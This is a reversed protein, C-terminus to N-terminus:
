AQVESVEPMNIIETSIKGSKSRKQKKRQQSELFKKGRYSDGELMIIECREVLRDILATVSAANPFVSGWEEFARNTTIITSKKEACRKHVLQFLLDAHINNYSLYGIEDIAIVQPKIYKSLAKELGITGKQSCLEDLLIASETFIASIGQQAASFIINKAITTKGIGSPGFLIINEGARTFDMNFLEMIQGKDARRYWSWDFNTIPEFEATNAKRLYLDLRRKEREQEEWIVIRNVANLLHVDAAIDSWNTKVSYFRLKNAKEILISNM